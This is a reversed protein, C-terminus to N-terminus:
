FNELIEPIESIKPTKPFNETLIARPRGTIVWFISLIWIEIKVSESSDVWAM